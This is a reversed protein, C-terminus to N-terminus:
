RNDSACECMVGILRFGALITIIIQWALPIQNVWVCIIALIPFIM